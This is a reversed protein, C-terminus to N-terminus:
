PINPMTGIRSVKCETGKITYEAQSFQQTIFDTFRDAPERNFQPNRAVDPPCSLQEVELVLFSESFTHISM